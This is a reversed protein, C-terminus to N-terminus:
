SVLLCQRARLPESYDADSPFRGQKDPWLCQLAPFDDGKYFWRAYGFHEPYHRHAVHLFRVDYGELIGSASEGDAFRRGRRVEEGILNIMRHMLDLGLGFVIIEPHGFSRFLGISYAFSPGEDDEPIM